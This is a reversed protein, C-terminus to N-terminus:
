DGPNISEPRVGAASDQNSHNRRPGPALRLSWRLPGALSLQLWRNPRVRQPLAAVYLIGSCKMRRSFVSSLTKRIANNVTAFSKSPKAANSKVHCYRANAAFGRSIPLAVNNIDFTLSAWNASFCSALSRRAPSSYSLALWYPLAALEARVATASGSAKQWANYRHVFDNILLM